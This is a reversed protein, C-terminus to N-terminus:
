KRLYEFRLIGWVVALLLFLDGLTFSNQIIIHELVFFLSIIAILLFASSIIKRM